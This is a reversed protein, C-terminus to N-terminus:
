GLILALVYKYGSSVTGYRIIGFQDFYGGRGTTGFPEKFTILVSGVNNRNWVPGFM